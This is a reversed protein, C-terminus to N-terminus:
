TFSAKSKRNWQTAYVTPHQTAFGLATVGPGGIVSCGVESQVVWPYRRRVASRSRSHRVYVRVLVAMCQAKAGAYGVM